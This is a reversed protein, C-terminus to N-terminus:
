RFGSRQRETLLRTSQVALLAYVVVLEIDDQKIKKTIEAIGDADLEGRGSTVLVIKRRYKLKKCHKAIMQIAIVIASIALSVKILSNPLFNLSYNGDGEDINSIKIIDRMQKLDPLLIRSSKLVCFTTYCSRTSASRKFSRSITLARKTKCNM